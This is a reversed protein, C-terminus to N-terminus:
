RDSNDLEVVVKEKKPDMTSLHRLSGTLYKETPMRALIKMGRCICIESM